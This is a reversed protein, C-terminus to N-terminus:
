RRGDSLTNIMVLDLDSQSEHVNGLKSITKRLSEEPKTAVVVLKTCLPGDMGHTMMMGRFFGGSTADALTLTMLSCQFPPYRNFGLLHIQNLSAFVVGKHRGRMLLKTSGETAPFRTLRIFEKQRGNQYIMLLSRVLINPVAQLPFYTLYTGCPLEPIELDLNKNSLAYLGLPSQRTFYGNTQIGTRPGSAEAFLTHEDIELFGCIKRLTVANPISTGALYKNFQQRNIGIGRCIDAITGHEFSKSRLNAAFTSHISM